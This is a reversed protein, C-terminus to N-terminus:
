YFILEYLNVVSKIDLEENYKKRHTDLYKKILYLKETKCKVCECTFKWYELLKSRDVYDNIGFIKIYSICLEEGIKIDRSAEFIMKGKSIRYTVNPDCSHNFFSGYYLMAQKNKGFIFGNTSIKKACIEKYLDSNTDFQSDDTSPALKMLKDMVPLCVKYLNTLFDVGNLILFPKEEFITKGKKIKKNICVYYRGKKPSNMLNLYPNNMVNQELCTTSM